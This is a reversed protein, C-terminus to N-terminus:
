EKNYNILLNADKFFTLASIGKQTISFLRENKRNVKNKILQLKLLLDIKESLEDEKLKTEFILQNKNLPGTNFLVKLMDIYSILKSRQMKKLQNFSYELLVTYSIKGM